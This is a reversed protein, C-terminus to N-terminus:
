RGPVAPPSAVIAGSADVGYRSDYDADVVSRQRIFSVGAPPAHGDSMRVVEYEQLIAPEMPPNFYPALADVGLPLRGATVAVYKRLAASLQEAFKQKAASRLAALSQRVAEPTDFQAGRAVQLWDTETLLGLEPIAAEPHQAVISHLTQWRAMWAKAEAAVAADTSAADAPPAAEAGARDVAATRRQALAAILERDDQARTLLAGNRAVLDRSEARLRVVGHQMWGAIGAAVVVIALAVLVSRRVSGRVSEPCSKM